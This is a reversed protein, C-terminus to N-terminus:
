SRIGEGSTPRTVESVVAIHKARIGSPPNSPPSSTLPQPRVTAMSAVPAAYKTMVM